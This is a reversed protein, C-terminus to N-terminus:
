FRYCLFDINTFFPFPPLLIKKLVYFNGRVRSRVVINMFFDIKELILHKM